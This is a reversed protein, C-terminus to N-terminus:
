KAYAETYVDGTYFESPDPASELTGTRVFFDSLGDLWGDVTGDKTKAVIDATSMVEVHGADAEVKDRDLELLEATLTISEEYHEARWDNAQQLVKVVKSNFEPEVDNRAVFATPFSDEMNETSSLERLDPVKQKITDILPYFIGAGDIQGSSFASVVTSPDMPIKQIDEATMGAEHLALNLIMDGSTGEPVGVKKGKLDKMSTIGPQAIVRDAYTLTNIAAVEVRGSAPLWMAGPGIYGYDLDGAGLAEVQVPGNNFAKVDVTLGQKKWLGREDAIALLSAGNYDSIYGFDVTSDNASSGSCGNVSLSLLTTTAAATLARRMRSGPM